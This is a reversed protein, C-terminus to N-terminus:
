CEDSGERYLSLRVMGVAYGLSAFLEQDRRDNAATRPLHHRPSGARRTEPM